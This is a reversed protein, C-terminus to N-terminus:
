STAVFKSMFELSRSLALDIGKRVAPDEADGRIVWGHKMEAFETPMCDSNPSSSKLADFIDGGPRYRDPDNGLSHM